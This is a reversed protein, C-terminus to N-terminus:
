SKDPPYNEKDSRTFRSVKPLPLKSIGISSKRAGFLIVQLHRWHRKSLTKNGADLFDVMKPVWSDRPNACLTKNKPFFFIVAPLNCSGSVEQRRYSRAYRLFGPRVRSHYALCCDESVGQAHITSWAGVLSAVLCLVLWPNMTCAARGGRTDHPSFQMWVHLAQTAGDTTHGVRSRLEPRSRLTTLKFGANPEMSPPSGVLTACRTLIPTARKLRNGCTSQSKQSPLNGRQCLRQQIGLASGRCRACQPQNFLISSRIM